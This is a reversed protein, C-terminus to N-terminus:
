SLRSLFLSGSATIAAITGNQFGEPWLQLRSQNFALKALAVRFALTSRSALRPIFNHDELRQHQLCQVIEGVIRRFALKTIAEGEHAKETKKQLICAYM